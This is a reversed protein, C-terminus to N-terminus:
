IKTTAATAGSNSVRTVNTNEKYRRGNDCVSTLAKRFRSGSACYLFFNITSNLYYLVYCLGYAGYVKAMDEETELSWLNYGMGIFYVASPSTMLLFAVSVVLLMATTSTTKNDSKSSANLQKQRKGQMVIIKGVILINGVLIIVFPGFCVLFLDM